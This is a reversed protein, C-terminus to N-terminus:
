FLHQTIHKLRVGVKLATLRQRLRSSNTTLHRPSTNRGHSSLAQGRSARRPAHKFHRGFFDCRKEEKPGQATLLAPNRLNMETRLVRRVRCPRGPAPPTPRPSRHSPELAAYPLGKRRDYMLSSRINVGLRIARAWASARRVFLPRTRPLHKGPALSRCRRLPRTMPVPSSM